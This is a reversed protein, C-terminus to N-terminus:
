NFLKYNMYGFNGELGIKSLRDVEENKERYVHCFSIFSFNEKLVHIRDIWHTVLRPNLNSKNNMHDILIKSDGFVWLSDVYLNSAVWILGWLAICEARTNSGYGGNWYFKYHGTPSLM